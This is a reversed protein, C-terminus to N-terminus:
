EKCIGYIKRNKKILFKPERYGENEFLLGEQFPSIYRISGMGDRELKILGYEDFGIVTYNVGFVSVKDGEKIFSPDFILNNKVFSNWRSRAKKYKENNIISYEASYRQLNWFMDKLNCTGHEKELFDKLNCRILRSGSVYDYKWYGFKKNEYMKYIHALVGMHKCYWFFVGLINM